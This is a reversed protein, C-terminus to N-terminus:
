NVKFKSTTEKLSDSLTLLKEGIKHSSKVNNLQDEFATLMEESGALTEESVSAFAESSEEVKPLAGELYRLDTRMTNLTKNVSSINCLLDDLSQRSDVAISFNSKFKTLMQDFQNSAKESIRDMNEITKTIKTTSDSSQEALKRVENAVVAFGRGAEGARAAEITANLALLKTQEAVQKIISVVNVISLSHKRVDTVTDRMEGFDKTFTDLTSAMKGISVESKSASLEMEEAKTFVHDMQSFISNVSDKMVQFHKISTDSTGATEEAGHKVIRVTEVMHENEIILSKSSQQLKVGTTALDSTTQHINSLLEKMKDIMSQFSKVLSVIEPTTSKVDLEVELNGERVEKMSERLQAIPSTLTQVIMILIFTVFSISIMIAIIIFKTMENVNKMYDSQPVAIVYEGKLEQISHFALTYKKDNLNTHIIGKEQKKIKQIIEEDFQIDSNKSIAFPVVGTDKFLFFEGKLGDQSMAANQKKIVGNIEKDVREENGIFALMLNQSIDYISTVERDLRQEMSHIIAEKSKWYSIIGVVTGM